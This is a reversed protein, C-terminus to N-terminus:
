CMGVVILAQAALYTLMVSFNILRAHRDKFKFKGFLLLSDSVLFLVSGFWTMMQIGGLNFCRIFACVSMVAVFCLYMPALFSYKKPTDNRLSFVVFFVATCYLIILGAILLRSPLPSQADLLFAIIYCIHGLCFSIGGCLFCMNSRPFLLLADGACGLLLALLILPKVDTTLFFYSFALLPMLIPKSIRRIMNPQKMACGTLHVVSTIFFLIPFLHNM